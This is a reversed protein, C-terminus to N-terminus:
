RKSTRLPWTQPWRSMDDQGNCESQERADVLRLQLAEPDLEYEASIGCDGIGRGKLFTILRNGDWGANWITMTAVPGDAAMSVVPFVDASDGEQLYLRSPENYAGPSGCALVYLRAQDGMPVSFGLISPPFGNFDSCQGPGESWLRRVSAPLAAADAIDNALLSPKTPAKDGKDILANPTGTRQQDEDMKRLAAVLGSLSFTTSQTKGAPTLSIEVTSARKLDALLDGLDASVAQGEKDARFASAPLERSTGDDFRLTVQGSLPAAERLGIALKPVDAAGPGRRIGLAILPANGKSFTSADCDLGSTCTLSWDRYIGGTAALAGTAALGTLAIAMRTVRLKRGGM